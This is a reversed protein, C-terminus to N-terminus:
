DEVVLNHVHVWDGSKIDKKAQGIIEGYKLIDEGRALDRLAVKHSFPLDDAAAIQRGDNLYVPEGKRIDELTVAVNDAENIILANPRM